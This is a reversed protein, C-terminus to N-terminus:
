RCLCIMCMKHPNKDDNLKCLKKVASNCSNVKEVQERQKGCLIHIVKWFYASNIVNECVKGCRNDSEM